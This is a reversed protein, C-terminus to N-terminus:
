RDRGLPVTFGSLTNGREKWKREALRLRQDPNKLWADRKRPEAFLYLRDKNVIFLDPDGHMVMDDGISYACAHGFQPALFEPNLIFAMKNAESSFLYRYGNHDAYIDPNGAVPGTESRYSILDYGGLAIEATQHSGKPSIEQAVASPMQTVSSLGLAAAIMTRYLGTKVANRTM